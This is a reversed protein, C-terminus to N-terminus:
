GASAGRRAVRKAKIEDLRSEAVDGCESIAALTERLQKALAAVQGPDADELSEAILDRLAVLVERRDGGRCVGSLSPM